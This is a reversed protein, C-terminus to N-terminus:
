VRATHAEAARAHPTSTGEPTLLALEIAREIAIWADNLDAEHLLSCGRLLRLGLRRGLSAAEAVSVVSAPASASSAVSRTPAAPRADSTSTSASSIAATPLMYASLLHVVLPLVPFSSAGDARADSRVTSPLDIQPSCHQADYLRM